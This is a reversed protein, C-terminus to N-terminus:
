RQIIEVVTDVASPSSVIKFGKSIAPLNTKEIVTNGKMWYVDLDILTNKNWFSQPMAIPFTFIMGDADCIDKTQKINMLGYTQKSVSDAVLLSFTNQGITKRIVDYQYKHTQCTSFVRNSQQLRAIILIFVCLLILLFIFGKRIDM